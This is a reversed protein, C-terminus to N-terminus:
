ILKSVITKTICEVIWINLITIKRGPYKGNNSQNQRNKSMQPPMYTSETAHELFFSLYSAHLACEKWTIMVTM